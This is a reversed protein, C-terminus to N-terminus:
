QRCRYGERRCAAYGMAGSVPREQHERRCMDAAAVVLDTQRCLFAPIQLVDVVEAVPACQDPLHVDTLVPCGIADKVQQFIRLGEDMGVGRMAGASTRNAKDYSSKYIFGMGVAAAMGSLAEACMMAHDLGEVQCPGAILLLESDGGCPVEGIHFSSM